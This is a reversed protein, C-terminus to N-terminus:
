GRKVKRESIKHYLDAIIIATRTLDTDKQILGKRNLTALQGKSVLLLNNIDFNFRNGDGFIIVHGEPIPGNAQEWIVQHKLWWKNPDAVKVEVYGDVNVRESGVPRYNAPIHGKKFQTPEWGGVGKKGKNFPVNGPKFRCDLGSKLGHNNIFAKIQSISLNLGFRSNFMKTLDPVKKGKINNTIFDTQEKTYKHM